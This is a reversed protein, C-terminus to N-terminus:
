RKLARENKILDQINEHIKNLGTKSLQDLDRSLSEAFMKRKSSRDLQDKLEKDNGEVELLKIFAVVRKEYDKVASSLIRLNKAKAGLEVIAGKVVEKNQKILEEFVKEVDNDKTGAAKKKKRSAIILRPEIGAYTEM